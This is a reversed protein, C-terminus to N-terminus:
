FDVIFVDSCHWKCRKSTKITLKWCIQCRKRTDSNNLKSLYIKKPSYEGIYGKVIWAKASVLLEFLVTNSLISPLGYFQITDKFAPLWKTIKRPNMFYCKYRSEKSLEWFSSISFSTLLWNRNQGILYFEILNCGIIGVLTSYPM